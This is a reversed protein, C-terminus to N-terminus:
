TRALSLCWVKKFQNRKLVKAAELLTTGTTAVDDVIIVQRKEFEELTQRDVQGSVQFAGKLNQRRLKQKLEVQAQTERKKELLRTLVLAAPKFGKKQARGFFTEALTSAIIESQNFGREFLRLKNPHLPIPVMVPSDALDAFDSFDSLNFKTTLLQTLFPLIDFALHPQYKAQHIAEKVPSSYHALSLFGDPALPKRCKPHTVGNLSPRECVLCIQERPSFFKIRKQCDLCLYSGIRTCSVCHKPFFFDLLFAFNM